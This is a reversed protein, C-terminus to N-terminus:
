ANPLSKKFKNIIAVTAAPCMSLTANTAAEPHRYWHGAIQMVAIKLSAPVKGYQKVLRPFSCNITKEVLEVAGDIYSELMEDQETEDQELRLHEKLLSLSVIEM